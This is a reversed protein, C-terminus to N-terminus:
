NTEDVIDVLRSAVSAFAGQDIRASGGSDNNGMAVVVFAGRSDTELLWGYTLVRFGGNDSLGGGKFWVREWKARLNVVATEAGYAQDTIAFGESLDNFQRLGAIANCVDTSTAQWTGQVLAELNATPFSTVPGLPELTNDVYDRQFM